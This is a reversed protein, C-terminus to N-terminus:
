IFFVQYFSGCRKVSVVYSAMICSGNRISGNKDTVSINAFSRKQQHPPPPPPKTNANVMGNAVMPSPATPAARDACVMLLTKTASGRVSGRGKNIGIDVNTMVESAGGDNEERDVVISIVDNKMENSANKEMAEKTALETLKPVGSSSSLPLYCSPPVRLPRQMSGNQGSSLCNNRKNRKFYRQFARFSAFKKRSSSGSSSGDTDIPLLVEATGCKEASSISMASRASEESGLSGHRRSQQM